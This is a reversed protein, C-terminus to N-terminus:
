SDIEKTIRDPSFDTFSVCNQPQPEYLIGIKGNKLLSLCSYAFFDSHPTEKYQVGPGLRREAIWRISYDKQVEGLTIAGLTRNVTPHSSILYQYGPRMMPFYPYNENDKENENRFPYAIVSKQCAVSHLGTTTMASFTEGGDTSFSFPTDGSQHQRGFTMITGDYLEVCQMEDINRIESDNMIRGWTYGDDDSYIISAKGPIYVPMLIRGNKSTDKQHELRIGVGPGTGLFIGDKDPEKVQPTIDMPQSWTAGFDKSIMVVLYSAVLAHLPAPDTEVATYASFGDYSNGDDLPGVIRKKVFTPNNPNFRPKNINLYINGVYIDNKETPEDPILPPPTNIYDASGVAYYMDGVTRYGHSADHRQPIYYNTRIGNGDYIWGDERVTFVDGETSGEAPVKGDFLKLYNKGNIHAYADGKELYDRNHLGKSEPFFDMIMVISGNKTQVTLPDIYFASNWDGFLQPAHHVPPTVITNIPSSWNQGCDTSRRIAVGTYGWDAGEHSKDVAAILIDNPYLGQTDASLLSPIRFGRAGDMVEPEGIVTPDVTDASISSFLIIDDKERVFAENNEM